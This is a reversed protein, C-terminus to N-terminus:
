KSLTLPKQLSFGFKRSLRHAISMVDGYVIQAHERDTVSEVEISIADTHSKVRDISEQVPIDAKKIVRVKQM